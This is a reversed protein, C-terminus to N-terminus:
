RTNWKPQVPQTVHSPFGCSKPDASIRGELEDTELQRRM